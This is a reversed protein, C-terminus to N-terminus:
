SSTPRRTTSERAFTSSGPTPAPTSATTASPRHDQHRAPRDPQRLPRLDHRRRGHRDIGTLLRTSGQQDHHLYLATAKATSRSSRCHRRARLHLQEPRRQPDAATDEAMDWAIYSPAKATPKASRPPRRRQLHLQREIGKPAAKKPGHQGIDPQRGPRLRLDDSRSKTPSGKPSNARKTTPTAAARKSSM